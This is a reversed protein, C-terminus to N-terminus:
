EVPFIALFSKKAALTPLCGLTEEKGVAKMEDMRPRKGLCSRTIRNNAEERWRLSLSFFPPPLMYMYLRMAGM